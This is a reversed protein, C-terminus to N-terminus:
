INKPLGLFRPTMARYAVYKDGFSDELYREEAILFIRLSFWFFAALLLAFLSRGILAVGLLAVGWGVNQPNRSFRYIGSSVLEDAQMGSMRMFSRFAIVGALMMALGAFALISGVFIAAVKDISVSWVSFWAALLILAVHLTYLVWVGAVSVKSLRQKSEYDRQVLFIFYAAFPVLAASLIYLLWM